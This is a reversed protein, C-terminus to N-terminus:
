EDSAGLQLNSLYAYLPWVVGVVVGIALVIDLLGDTNDNAMALWDLAVLPWTMLQLDSYLSFM